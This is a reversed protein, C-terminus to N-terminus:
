QDQEAEAYPGFDRVARSLDEDIEGAAPIYRAMLAILDGGTVLGIPRGGRDIVAVADVGDTHMVRAVEGVSADEGVVAPRPELMAAVTVCELAMPDAAWAAAITRDAVVGVCRGREDVVVLHRLGTRTLATLASGLRASGLIAIAPSSMIGTAARAVLDQHTVHSSM